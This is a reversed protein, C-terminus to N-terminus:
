SNQFVTRSSNVATIKDEGWRACYREAADALVTERELGAKYGEILWHLYTGMREAARGDRFPDLEELMPSWDGFGPMSAPNARYKTLVDWLERCNPFVVRDVGLRYLPSAKWGERDILLTPVGTLAAELGATGAVLHGHIAVDAALVAAAPPVVGKHAGEKFVHCRGTREAEQLLEGVPGLRRYLTSPAKPKIVLGLWENQLVKELLCQYNERTIVHGVNLREDDASGEDLFAIIFRAGKKLLNERVQGARGALLPFRHDGLFGVAVHYPIVSGSLREVEADAQSYGFMIDAQIATSPCANPQCARQYIATVGELREMADALACHREDYRYWSVYVKINQQGCLETWYDREVFYNDIQYQTWRADSRDRASRAARLRPGSRSFVATQNFHPVSAVVTAKPHVALPMIQRSALQALKKEDLPDYPIGFTLVIDSGSLSSQQLFFLDSFLDPQDLNLQGQYETGIRPGEGSCDLRRLGRTFQYFGNRLIRVLAVGKPGLIQQAVQFAGPSPKVDVLSVGFRKAYREAAHMFHRREAFLVAGSATTSGQLRAKWACIQISLILRHLTTRDRLNLTSIKKAVFAPLRRSSKENELERFLPEDLAYAQVEALDKHAIRMEILLESEDKIDLLRYDLWEVPIRVLRGSWSAAKITWSRGELVYCCSPLPMRRLRNWLLRPWITLFWTRLTLVEVFYLKV